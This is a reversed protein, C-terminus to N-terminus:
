HLTRLYESIARVQRSGDRDLPPYFSRPFDPWFAPMRTGPLIASPNRLWAVIWEPQLRDRTMRLDPALNSAPQDGPITGLVHCQQCKLLDFLEKGAAATAGPPAPSAEPNPPAIARLYNGAREVEDDSLAFTPMRVSLWPRITKPQHLFGRLWAPQVRSGEPTLLPPGLAPEAVLAVFDGGTGEVQHCGVCNREDVLTRGAVKTLQWPTTLAHTEQKRGSVATLALALRERERPGLSYRPGPHPPGAAPLRGPQAQTQTQAGSGGFLAGISAEDWDAQERLRARTSRQEFGRIEHCNFCGLAEIVSRGAAARLETGGSAASQASQSYRRLVARYPEDNDAPAPVTNSGGDGALSQLYTAIDAAEQPELRLNPMRTDPSYRSPERLWDFLWPYTTKGGIGQLPQGFTRRLSSEDRATDGVVHCGLCGVSELLTRGRAADGRPPAASVPVYGDSNSFLYAVVADIAAREDTVLPRPGSWFSPMWTAPKISQPEALWQRVWEPSLKGSIRRLDPGRRPTQEMGPVAHCAYCGAREFTVLADNLATRGPQYREGLHCSVCGAETHELPLMAGPARRDVGVRVPVGPVASDPTPHGAAVFSTAHGDGQHCSACRVRSPPHPSQAGVYSSLAPHARYPAPFAEYGPTAIAVHCAVCGNENVPSAPVVAALTAEHSVTVIPGGLVAARVTATDSWNLRAELASAEAEYSERQAGSAARAQARLRMIRGRDAARASRSQRAADVQKQLNAFHRRIQQVESFPRSLGWGVILAALVAMAAFLRAAQAGTRSRKM